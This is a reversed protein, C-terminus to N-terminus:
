DKQLRQKLYDALQEMAVQEQQGSSLDKVQVIGQELEHSGFLVAFRTSLRVAAQLQGKLKRSLYDKDAAIGRRRLAQLLVVAQEQAQEGIPVLYCDLGTEALPL